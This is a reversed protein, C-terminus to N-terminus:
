TSASSIRLRRNAIHVARQILGSWIPIGLIKAGYYSSCFHYTYMTYNYGFVSGNGHGGTNNFYRGTRFIHRNGLAIRCGKIKSFVLSSPLPFLPWYMHPCSQPPSLRPITKTIPLSPCPSRLSTLFFTIQHDFNWHQTRYNM